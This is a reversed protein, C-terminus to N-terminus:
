PSTPSSHSGRGDVIDRICRLQQEQTAKIARTLKALQAVQAAQRRQSRSLSLNLGRLPGGQDTARSAQFQQSLEFRQLMLTLRRSELESVEPSPAPHSSLWARRADADEKVAAPRGNVYALWEERTLRDLQQPSQYSPIPVGSSAYDELWRSWTLSVGQLEVLSPPSSDVKETAAAKRSKRRLM